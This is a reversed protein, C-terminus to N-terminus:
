RDPFCSVMRRALASVPRRPNDGRPVYIPREKSFRSYRVWWQKSGKNAYDGLLQQM